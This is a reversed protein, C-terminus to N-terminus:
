SADQEREERRQALMEGTMKRGRGDTILKMMEYHYSSVKIYDYLRGLTGQEMCLPVKYVRADLTKTEDYILKRMAWAYKERVANEIDRATINTGDADAVEFVIDLEIFGGLLREHCKIPPCRCCQCYHRPLEPGDQGIVFGRVDCKDDSECHVNKNGGIAHVLSDFDDDQSSSSPSCSFSFSYDRSHNADINTTSHAVNNSSKYSSFQQTITTQVKKGKDTWKISKLPSDGRPTKCHTTCCAIDDACKSDEDVPSTERVKNEKKNESSVVANDRSNPTVAARTTSESQTYPNFLLTVNTTSVSKPKKTPPPSDTM